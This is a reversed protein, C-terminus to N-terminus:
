MILVHDQSTVMDGLAMTTCESQPKLQLVWHSQSLGMSIQQTHNPGILM